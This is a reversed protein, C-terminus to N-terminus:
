TPQKPHASSRDTGNVEERLFELFLAAAHSFSSHKRWAVTLRSEIRPELPRMCLESEESIDILGDWTVLSGIGEEALVAANFPLNFDAVIRVDRLRDGFWEIVNNGPVARMSQSSVILPEGALDDRTIAIKRALPNDKRTYLMWRNKEPLDFCAYKGLTLPQALLAFDLAGRDLQVCLDAANGSSLHVVVRPYQEQMRKVARAVVAMERTEAAGFYVDGELNSRLAKFEAETQDVLGVIDKARDRFLTGERTLAVNHSHREFLQEGLEVELDRIQRSLTPQTVHLKAAAATINGEHAVALFYRLVRIEM